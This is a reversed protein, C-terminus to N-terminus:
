TTETGIKNMKYWKVNM